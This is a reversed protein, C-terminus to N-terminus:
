KVLYFIIGGLYISGILANIMVLSYKKWELGLYMFGFSGIFGLIINAPYWNLGSLAVGVVLLVTSTWEVITNYKDTMTM